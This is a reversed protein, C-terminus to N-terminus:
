VKNGERIKSWLPEWLELSRLADRKGKSAAIRLAYVPAVRKTFWGVAFLNVGIIAGQVPAQQYTLWLALVVSGLGIASLMSAVQAASAPFTFYYRYREVLQAEEATFGYPPKEVSVPARALTRMRWFLWLDLAYVAAIYVWSMSQPNIAALGALILMVVAGYRLVM